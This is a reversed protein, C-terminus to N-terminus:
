KGKIKRKRFLLIVIAVGIMIITAIAIFLALTTSFNGPLDMSTKYIVKSLDLVENYTNITKKGNRLELAAISIKGSQVNGYAPVMKLGTITKSNVYPKDYGINYSYERYQTDNAIVPIWTSNEESYDKDSTKWYAKMLSSSTQNKIIFHIQHARDTAITFATKTEISANKSVIVGEFGGKIAKVEDFGTSLSWKVGKFDTEIEGVLDRLAPKSENIRVLNLFVVNNTDIGEFRYKGATKPEFYVIQRSKEDKKSFTPSSKEEKGDALLTVLNIKSVDENKGLIVATFPLDARYYGSKDKSSETSQQQSYAKLRYAPKSDKTAIYVTGKTTKLSVRIKKAQIINGVPIDMWLLEEPMFCDKKAVQVYTEDQLAEIIATASSMEYQESAMFPISISHIVQDAPLDIEFVNENALSTKESAVPEISSITEQKFDDAPVYDVEFSRITDFGDANDGIAIESFSDSSGGKWTNTFSSADYTATIWQMSNTKTITALDEEGKDTKVRITFTDVGEDYYELNLKSSYMGVTKLRDDISIKITGNTANTKAAQVGDITVYDSKSGKADQNQYMQYTLNYHNFAKKANNSYYDFKMMQAFLKTNLVGGASENLYHNYRTFYPDQLDNNYIWFYDAGYAIGKNMLSIPHGIINSSINNVQAGQEFIMKSDPDNKHRYLTYYIANSDNNWETNREQWGNYKLIIGKKAVYSSITWDLLPQNKFDDTGKFGAITMMLTKEKFADKYTDACKKVHNIYNTDTYGFTTWQDELSRLESATDNCLTLEEWRGFGGVYVIDVQEDDRYKDAFTKVFKSYQEMFMPDFYNPFTLNGVFFGGKMEVININDMIAIGSQVGIQVAYDNVIGTPIFEVTKVGQEGALGQWDYAKSDNPDSKSFIKVTLTADALLRYDFQISYGNTSILPQTAPNTEISDPKTAKLSNKGINRVAFDKVISDRITYNKNGNEFNLWYGKAIRRVNYKNYLWAPSDNIGFSAASVSVSIKKGLTKYKAAWKDIVSWDYVGETKEVDSWNLYIETGKVEQMKEFLVHYQADTAEPAKYIIGYDMPSPNSTEAAGSISTLIGVMAFMACVILGKKKM